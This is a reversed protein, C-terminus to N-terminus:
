PSYGSFSLPFLGALGHCRHGQSVAGEAPLTHSHCDPACPPCQPAPTTDAPLSPLVEQSPNASPPRALFSTERGREGGSTVYEKISPLREEFAPKSSCLYLGPIAQNLILGRSLARQCM